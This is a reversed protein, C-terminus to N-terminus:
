FVEGGLEEPPVTGRPHRIKWDTLDADSEFASGTIVMGGREYTVSRDSFLRQRRNDWGLVETKLVAGTESVVVVGQRAEMDNTALNITGEAATLVATREGNDYFNVTPRQAVAQRTKDWVFALDAVLEWSLRGEESQRLTFREIEQDPEGEVPVFDAPREEACAALLILGLFPLIRKM